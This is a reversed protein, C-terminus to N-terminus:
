PLQSSAPSIPPIHESVEVEKGSQTNMDSYVKMSQM